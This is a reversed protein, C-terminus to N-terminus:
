HARPAEGTALLSGGMVTIARGILYVEGPVRDLRVEIVGGRASLQAGILENTHLREAWFPGLGCHSSGTAQDEPIGIKPGFYRSVFSFAPDSSVATVVLGRTPLQAVRDLNPHLERVHRDSPLEVFLDLDNRGIWRPEVGALADLLGAPPPIPQPPLSPFGLGVRGAEGYATLRGGATDFVLPDSGEGREWLVHAAALTAHGCLTLETTATFWRLSFRGPGSPAVFATAAQNLEAGVKQMWAADAPADLLCVGAPNGSFPRQAFADVLFLSVEAAAM